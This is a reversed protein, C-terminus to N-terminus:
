QSLHPGYGSILAAIQQFAKHTETVRRAAANREAQTYSRVGRVHERMMQVFAKNASDNAVWATRVEDHTSRNM